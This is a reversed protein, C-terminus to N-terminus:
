KGCLRRNRGTLFSFLDSKQLISVTICFQSTYNVSNQFEAFRWGNEIATNDARYQDEASIKALFSISIVQRKGGTDSKPLEPQGGARHNRLSIPEPDDTANKGMETPRVFAHADVAKASKHYWRLM